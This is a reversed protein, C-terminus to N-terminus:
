PMGGRVSGSRGANERRGAALLPCMRWGSERRERVVRCPTGTRRPENRTRGERSQTRLMIAILNAPGVIEGSSMAQCDDEGIPALGERDLWDRAMQEMSRENDRDYDALRERCEAAIEDIPM